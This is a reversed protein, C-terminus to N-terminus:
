RERGTDTNTGFREHALRWGSTLLEVEVAVEARTPDELTVYTAHGIAELREPTDPHEPMYARPDHELCAPHGFYLGGHEVAGDAAREESVALEL